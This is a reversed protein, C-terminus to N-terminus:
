VYSSRLFKFLADLNIFIYETHAQYQALSSTKNSPIRSKIDTINHQDKLRQLKASYKTSGTLHYYEKISCRKVKRSDSGTVATFVSKRGPDIAIPLYGAYIEELDFDDLLLDSNMLTSDKTQIKRTYFLFGITFGDSRALNGFLKNNSGNSNLDEISRFRLKYFKFVTYFLQLQDVYGRPLSQGPLFASLANASITIFRWHYTPSPLVSSLRPLSLRRVDYLTSYNVFIKARLIIHRIDRCTTIIKTKLIDMYADHVCNDFPIKRTYAMYGQGLNQDM